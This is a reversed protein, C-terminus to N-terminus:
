KKQVISYYIILPLAFILTGLKIDWFYHDFLSIILFSFIICCFICYTLGYIGGNKENIYTKIFMSILLLLFLFFGIIGLESFILLYVNHVPQYQWGELDPHRNHESLVFQGVGVGVVPHSLITEYSVIKYLSREKLSQDSFLSTEHFLLVTVFALIVFLGIKKLPSKSLGPKHGILKIWWLFIVLSFAMGLIASRSFSLFLGLGTFCGSLMLFWGPLFDLPTEHLVKIRRRFLEAIIFFMPVVLFGALINPHPMTGYARIHKDGAIIIKAVGDINPGLIGEGLFRIGLSGNHIFQAIGLLSQFLGNLIVAFLIIELWKSNRLSKVAIFAFLAIETLTLFGYLAIPRFQSWFISLGIWGLFILLYFTERSVNIFSKEFVEGHGPSAYYPNIVQRLISKTTYIVITALMLLDAWSFSITLYENFGGNLCSYPTLFVKRINLSFTLFFILILIREANQWLWAIKQKMNEM